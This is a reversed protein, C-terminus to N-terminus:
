SLSMLRVVFQTPQRYILLLAVSYFGSCVWKVQSGFVEFKFPSHMLLGLIQKATEPSCRPYCNAPYSHDFHARLSDDEDAPSSVDSGPSSNSLSGLEIDHKEIGSDTFPYPEDKNSHFNIGLGNSEM